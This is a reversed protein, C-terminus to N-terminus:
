WYPPSTVINYAQDGIAVTVGLSTPIGTSPDLDFAYIEGTSVNNSVYLHMGDSTIAVSQSGSGTGFTQMPGILAGPVSSTPVIQWSSMQSTSSVAYFYKGQPDIRGWGGGGGGLSFPSGTSETLSEGARNYSFASINGTTANVMYVYSATTDVDISAPSSASGTATVSSVNSIDGTASTIFYLDIGSTGAVSDAVLLYQGSPEAVIASGATGGVGTYAAGGNLPTLTGNSAIAFGYVFNTGGGSDTVYLYRGSPEIAIASPATGSGVPNTAGLSTLSGTTSDLAFSSVDRSNLNAVYVYCGCPHVAISFANPGVTGSNPAASSTLQGSNPNISYSLLTDAVLSVVLAFRPVPASPGGQDPIANDVAPICGATFVALALLALFARRKPVLARASITFRKM